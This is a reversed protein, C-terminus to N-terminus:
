HQEQHAVEKLVSERLKVWMDLALLHRDRHKTFSHDLAKDKNKVRDMYKVIDQTDLTQSTSVHMSKGALEARLAQVEAEYKNWAEIYPGLSNYFRNYDDLSVRKPIKPVAPAKPVVFTEESPTEPYMTWFGPPIHDFVSSDKKAANPASPGDDDASLPPEEAAKSPFPLTEKLSEFGDLGVDAPSRSLPPVAGIGGMDLPSGKKPEASRKRAGSNPSSHSPNTSAGAARPPPPPPPPMTKPTGTPEADMPEYGFTDLTPPKIPPEESTDVKSHEPSKRTTQSSNSRKKHLSPASRKKRTTSSTNSRQFAFPEGKM